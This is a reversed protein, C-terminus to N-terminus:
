ATFPVVFYITHTGKIIYLLVPKLRVSSSCAPEVEDQGATEEQNFYVAAPEQGSLSIKMKLGAIKFVYM